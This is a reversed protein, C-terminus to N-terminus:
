FFSRRSIRVMPFYDESIKSSDPTIKYLSNYLKKLYKALFVLTIMFFLALLVILLPSSPEGSSLSEIAYGDSVQNLNSLPETRNSSAITLNGQLVNEGNVAGYTGEFNIQYDNLSEADASFEIGVDGIKSLGTNSFHMLENQFATDGKAYKAMEIQTGFSFGVELVYISDQSMFTGTYTKSDSFSDHAVSSFACSLLLFLHFLRIRDKIYYKMLKKMPKIKLTTDM